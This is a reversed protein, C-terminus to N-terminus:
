EPSNMAQFNANLPHKEANGGLETDRSALNSQGKSPPDWTESALGPAGKAHGNPNARPNRESTLAPRLLLQHKLRTRGTPLPFATANKRSLLDVM